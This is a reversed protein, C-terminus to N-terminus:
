SMQIELLSIWREQGLFVFAMVTPKEKLTLSADGTKSTSARTKSLIKTLEEDESNVEGVALEGEGRKPADTNNTDDESSNSLMEESDESDEYVEKRGQNQEQGEKVVDKKPTENQSENVDKNSEEDSEEDSEEELNEENEEEKRGNKPAEEEESDTASYEGDKSGKFSSDSALRAQKMSEELMNGGEFFDEEALKRKLVEAQVPNASRRPCVGKKFEITRAKPKRRKIVDTWHELHKKKEKVKPM